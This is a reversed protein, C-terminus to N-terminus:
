KDDEHLVEYMNALSTPHHGDEYRWVKLNERAIGFRLQKIVVQDIKEDVTTSDVEVFFYKKPM